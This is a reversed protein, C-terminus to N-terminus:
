LLMDIKREFETLRKILLTQEQIDSDLYEHIKDLIPMDPTSVDIDKFNLDLEPFKFSFEDELMPMFYGFIILNRQM